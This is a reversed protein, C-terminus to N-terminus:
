TPLCHLAKATAESWGDKAGAVAEGREAGEKGGGGGQNEGYCGEEGTRVCGEHTEGREWHGEGADGDDWGCCGM